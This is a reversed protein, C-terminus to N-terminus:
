DQGDSISVVEDLAVSYNNRSITNPPATLGKKIDILGVNGDHSAVELSVSGAVLELFGDYAMKNSLKDYVQVAQGVGEARIFIRM